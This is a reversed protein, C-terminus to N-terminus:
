AICYYNGEQTEASSLDRVEAEFQHVGILQVDRDPLLLVIDHPDIQKPSCECGRRFPRFKKRTSTGNSM